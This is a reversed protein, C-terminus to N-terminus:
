INDKTVTIKWQVKRGSEATVTLTQSTTFNMPTVGSEVPGSDSSVTAKDSVAFKPVLSSIDTSEPVVISVTCNGTNISTKQPIGEFYFSKIEAEQSRDPLSIVPPTDTRINFQAPQTIVNETGFSRTMGKIVSHNILTVFSFLVLTGIVVSFLLSVGVDIYDADGRQYKM